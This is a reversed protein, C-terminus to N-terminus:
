AEPYFERIFDILSETFKRDEMEYTKHDGDSDVMVKGDPTTYLEINELAIM